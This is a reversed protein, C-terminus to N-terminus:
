PLAAREVLHPPAEDYFVVTNLRHAVTVVTCNGRLEKKVMAQIAADTAHDVSATATERPATPCHLVRSSLLAFSPPPLARCAPRIRWDAQSAHDLELAHPTGEDMVLVPARRLLARAMCLLQREGASLNSGSEAVQWDLGGSLSRVKADLGGARSNRRPPAACLAHTTLLLDPTLRAISRIQWDHSPSSWRM